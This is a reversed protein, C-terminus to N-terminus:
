WTRRPTVGNRVVPPPAPHGYRILIRAITVRESDTPPGLERLPPAPWFEPLPVM